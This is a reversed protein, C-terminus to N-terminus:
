ANCTGTGTKAPSRFRRIWDAEAIEVEPAAGDVSIITRIGLEKLSQFAAEGQPVGGSYFGDHFAVVNRLGPYNRPTTDSMTPEQHRSSHGIPSRETTRLAQGDEHDTGTCSSLACVVVCAAAATMSLRIIIHIRNRHLM